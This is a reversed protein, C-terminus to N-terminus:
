GEGRCKMLGSLIFRSRRSELIIQPISTEFGTYVWGLVAFGGVCYLSFVVRYKTSEAEAPGYRVCDKRKVPQENVSEEPEQKSKSVEEKTMIKGSDIGLIRGEINAAFYKPSM